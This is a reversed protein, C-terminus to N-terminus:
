AIELGPGWAAFRLGCIFCFEFGVPPEHEHDEDDGDTRFGREDYRKGNPLPSASEAHDASAKENSPTSSRHSAM